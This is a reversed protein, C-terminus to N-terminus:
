LSHCSFGCSSRLGSYLFTMSIETLNNEIKAVLIPKEEKVEKM